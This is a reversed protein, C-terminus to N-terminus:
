EDRAEKAAPPNLAADVKAQWALIRIGFDSMGGMRSPRPMSELAERMAAYGNIITALAYAEEPTFGSGLLGGDAYHIECLESHTYPTVRVPLKFPLGSSM